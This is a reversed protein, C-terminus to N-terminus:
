GSDRAGQPQVCQHTAISRRTRWRVSGASCARLHYHHDGPPPATLHNADGRPRPRTYTRPEAAGDLQRSYVVPPNLRRATVNATVGHPLAHLDPLRCRDHDRESGQHHHHARAAAATITTMARLIYSATCPTGGREGPGRQLKRQLRAVPDSQAGARDRVGDSPAGCLQPCIRM